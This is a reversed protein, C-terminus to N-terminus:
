SSDRIEKYSREISGWWNRNTASENIEYVVLETPVVSLLAAPQNPYM